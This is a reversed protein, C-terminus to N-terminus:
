VLNADQMFKYFEHAKKALSLEPDQKDYNTWVCNSNFHLEYWTEYDGSYTKSKIKFGPPLNDILSKNFEKQAKIKKQNLDNYEQEIQTLNHKAEDITM